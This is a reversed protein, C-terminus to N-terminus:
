PDASVREEARKNWDLHNSCLQRICVRHSASIKNRGTDANTLLFSLFIEDEYYM